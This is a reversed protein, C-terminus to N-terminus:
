ESERKKHRKMGGIEDEELNHLLWHSILWSQGRSVLNNGKGAHGTWQVLCSLVVAAAVAVVLNIVVTLKPACKTQEFYSWCTM